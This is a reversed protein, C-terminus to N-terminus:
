VQSVGMKKLADSLSSESLYKWTISHDKIIVENFCGESDKQLVRYKNIDLEKELNEIVQDMSNTLSMKLPNCLDELYIVNNRLFNKTYDAAKMM